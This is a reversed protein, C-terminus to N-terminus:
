QSCQKPSVCDAPLRTRRLRNTNTANKIESSTLSPGCPGMQVASWPLHVPACSSLSQVPHLLVLLVVAWCALLGLGVGAFHPRDAAVVFAAPAPVAAFAAVAAAVLAAAVFAATAGAAAPVEPVLM